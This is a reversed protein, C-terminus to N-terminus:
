AITSKLTEHATIVREVKGKVWGFSETVLPNHEDFLSYVSMMHEKSETTVQFRLVRAGM